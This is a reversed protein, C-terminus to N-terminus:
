RGLELRPLGLLLRIERDRLARTSRRRADETASTAAVAADVREDIARQEDRTLAHRCEELMASELSFVHEDLLETPLERGAIEIQEAIGDLVEAVAPREVRQAAAAASVEDVLHRWDGGAGEAEPAVSAESQGLHMEALRRAHRKVAHRCYSLSVVPDADDRERQRAFVETLGSVVAALPVEDNWWSRLLQFDRPSLIHPAGRLSSFLDEVSRYYRLEADDGQM